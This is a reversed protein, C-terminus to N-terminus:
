CPLWRHNGHGEKNVAVISTWAAKVFFYGRGVFFRPSGVGISLARDKNFRYSGQSRHGLRSRQHQM